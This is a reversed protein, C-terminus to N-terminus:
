TPKQKYSVTPKIFIDVSTNQGNDFVNWGATNLHHVNESLRIQLKLTIIVNM